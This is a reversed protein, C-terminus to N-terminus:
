GGGRDRQRQGGAPVVLALPVVVGAPPVAVARPVVFVAVVVGVPVLVPVLVVFLVFSLGVPWGVLVRESVALYLVPVPVVVRLVPVGV